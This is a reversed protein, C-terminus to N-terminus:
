TAEAAPPSAQPHVDDEDHIPFVSRSAHEAEDEEPPSQTGTWIERAYKGAAVTVILVLGVGLVLDVRTLGSIDGPVLVVRLPLVSLVSVVLAETFHEFSRGIGHGGGAFFLLHFFLLAFLMPILAVTYVFFQNYWDRSLAIQFTDDANSVIQQFSKPAPTVSVNWDNAVTGGQVSHVQAYGGTDLSPTMGAPLTVALSVNATYKDQPYWGAYGKLPITVPYDHVGFQSASNINKFAISEQQEFNAGSGTVLMSATIADNAFRPNLVAGPFAQAGKYRIFPPFGPPIIVELTGTLKDDSPAFADAIFSIYPHELQTLLVHGEKGKYSGHAKIFASLFTTLDLTNASKPLVSASSSAPTRTADNVVLSITSTLLALVGIGLLTAFIRHHIKSGAM